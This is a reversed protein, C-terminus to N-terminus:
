GRKPTAPTAAHANAPRSLYASAPTGTGFGGSPCAVGVGMTVFGSFPEPRSFRLYSRCLSTMWAPQTLAGVVARHSTELIDDCCRFNRHVTWYMPRCTGNWTSIMRMIPDGLM